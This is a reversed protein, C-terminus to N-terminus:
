IQMLKLVTKVRIPVGKSRPHGVPSEIHTFLMNKSEMKTM